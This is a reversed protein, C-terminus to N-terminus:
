EPAARGRHARVRGVRPAQKVQVAVDPLPAGVPVVLVVILRPGCLVRGARCAARLPATDQAAARPAIDALQAAGGAPPARFRAGPGDEDAEAHREHRAFLRAGRAADRLFLLLAM